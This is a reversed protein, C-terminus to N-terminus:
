GVKNKQYNKNEYNTSTKKLVPKYIQNKTFM